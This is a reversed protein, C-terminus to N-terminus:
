RSKEGIIEFDKLRKFDSDFTAICKIRHHGCSAVILADSPLLLNDAMVDLVAELDNPTEVLRIGFEDLFARLSSLFQRDMESFGKKMIEGKLKFGKSGHNLSLGVYVVEELVDLITVPDDASRFIIKAAELKDSPFLYSLFVNADIM